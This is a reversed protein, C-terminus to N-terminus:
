MMIACKGFSTELFILMGIGKKFMARMSTKAAYGGMLVESLLNNHSGKEGVMITASM